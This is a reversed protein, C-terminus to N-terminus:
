QLPRRTKLRFEIRWSTGGDSLIVEDEHIHAVRFGDLSEGERLIRGNIVAMRQHAEASWAIAQLKFRSDDRLQNVAPKEAATSRHESQPETLAPAAIKKPAASAMTFNSKPSGNQATKLAPGPKAVRHIRNQPKTVGAAAPRAPEVVPPPMIPKQPATNDFKLPAPTIDPPKRSFLNVSTWPHYRVWLWGCAALM